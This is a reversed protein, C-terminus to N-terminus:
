DLGENCTPGYEHNRHMSSSMTLLAIYVSQGKSGPSIVLDVTDVLEQTRISEIDDAMRIAELWWGDKMCSDTVNKNSYSSLELNNEDYGQHLDNYIMEGPHEMQLSKLVAMTDPFVDGPIPRLPSRYGKCDPDYCKQYYVARRLDVIYMVHNSKHQRGIRECYRNKSMSYVMLGYESFWYWSRIRGAVNGISAISEVFADLTPFPSKGMFYTTPVDKTCAHWALENSSGSHQGFNGNVESDFCLTKVCDFEMKCILLKKCDTDMNCILSAMFMEEESEAVFAGAHLNDKFATKPIRIILHRSFKEETSSDLEIIWEQNGQISYKDFLADLIISILLDVMEDGNKGDNARKNFELDFYLHCPLGEQIVEYHHRFKPDMNKYRRWFEAYTSVLFRRQGNLHDQYSFVHAYAHGKAFKIAEDQRPFTAWVDERSQLSNQTTLDERIENLLKLLRYPRKAPVGYPSGYFIVPSLQKGSSFAIAKAMTTGPNEMCLLDATKQPKQRASSPSAFSSLASVDQRSSAKKLKDQHARRERVASQPPSVGCKFCEFLRDVDDMPDSSM